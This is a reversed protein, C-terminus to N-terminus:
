YNLYFIVLALKISVSAPSNGMDTYFLVPQLFGALAFFFSVLMGYYKFLYKHWLTFLAASLSRNSIHCFMNVTIILILYFHEEKLM